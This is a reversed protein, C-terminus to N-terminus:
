PCAPNCSWAGDTLSARMQCCPLIQGDSMDLNEAQQFVFGLSEYFSRANLSALVTLGELGDAHAIHLVHRVLLRGIGQHQHHPHVYCETLTQRSRDYGVYGIIRGDREAVFRARSRALRLFQVETRTAWEARQRASYFQTGINSIAARYLALASHTESPDIPRILIDM